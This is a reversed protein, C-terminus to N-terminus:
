QLQFNNRGWVKPGHSHLFGYSTPDIAQSYPGGANLTLPATGLSGHQCDIMESLSWNKLLDVSVSKKEDQYESYENIAYCRITGDEYAIMLLAGSTSFHGNTIHATPNFSVFCPFTRCTTNYESGLAESIKEQANSVRDILGGSHIRAVPNLNRVGGKEQLAEFPGFSHIPEGEPEIDMSSKEELHFIHTTGRSSSVALYDDKKSWSIATIMSQTRGRFLVYQLVAKFPLGTPAENRTILFVKLRNGSTSATCLLLGSNSFQMCSIQSGHAKFHALTDRSYLDKVLVHGLYESSEAANKHWYQVSLRSLRSSLSTTASTALNSLRSKLDQHLMTQTEDHEGSCELNTSFAVWRPGLAFSERSENGDSTTLVTFQHRFEDEVHCYGLLHNATQVLLVGDLTCELGLVDDCDVTFETVLSGSDIDYMKICNSHDSAIGLLITSSAEGSVVPM